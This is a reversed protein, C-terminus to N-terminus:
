SKAPMKKGNKKLQLHYQQEEDFLIHVSAGRKLLYVDVWAQQFMEMSSKIKKFDKGQNIIAIEPDLAVLDDETLDKLSFNEPIFLVNINKKWKSYDAMGEFWYIVFKGNSIAINGLNSENNYTYEIYYNASIAIVDQDKLTYVNVDTQKVDCVGNTYKPLYVNGVRYKKIIAHLNGCNENTPRTILIGKIHKNEWKKLRKLVEEKSTENGTNIIFIEDHNLHIISFNGSEIAEFIIEENPDFQVIPTSIIYFLLLLVKM